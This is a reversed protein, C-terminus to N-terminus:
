IGIGIATSSTSHAPANIPTILPSITVLSRTLETIAVRPVPVMM